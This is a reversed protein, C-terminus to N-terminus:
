LEDLKKLIIEVESALRYVYPEDMISSHTGGIESITISNKGNSWGRSMDNHHLEANFLHMPLDQVITDEHSAGMVMLAHTNNIQEIINSISDIDYFGSPSKKAFENLYTQRDMESILPITKSPQVRQLISRAIIEDKDLSDVFEKYQAHLKNEDITAPMRPRDILGAFKIKEGSDILLRAMENVISGGLSYGLLQYPGVPQTEKIDDIYQKCLETLSQAKNVQSLNRRELGYLPVAANFAKIFKSFSLMSGSADHILFLPIGTTISNLKIPNRKLKSFGHEAFSSITPYQLLTTLGIDVIDKAHIVNKNLDNQVKSILQPILLSHGGLDFFNDYRGVKEVKLVDQWIRALAIELDGEPAVYEGRALGTSDPNPLKKRDIKGNPTLPLQDLVMVVNPIMYDPLKAKLDQRLAAIDVTSGDTLNEDDVVPHAPTVYAV